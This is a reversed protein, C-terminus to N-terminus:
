SLFRMVTKLFWSAGMKKAIGPDPSGAFGILKRRPKLV